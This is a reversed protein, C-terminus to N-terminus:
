AQESLYISARSQIAKATEEATNRGAYFKNLEDRIITWLATDAQYCVDVTEVYALFDRMAQERSSANPSDKLLELENAIDLEADDRRLPIKGMNAGQLLFQRLFQWCQEKHESQASMGLSIEPFIVGGVEPLGVFAYQGQGYVDAALEAETLSRFSWLFLLAGTNQIHKVANGGLFDVTEEMSAAIELLHVFYDSDFYCKNNEWDVLRDGSASVVMRLWENRRYDGNFLSRYFGSEAVTQEFTDYNWSAPDGVDAAAAMTALLAFGPSVQYLGGCIELAALPGPLFDSRSLEADGDIYPYLDELLGRRTLLPVNLSSESQSFDYLDPINGASIDTALRQEALSPDEDTNYISYDKVEITCEPHSGNWALVKKQVTFPLGNLTAFTLTVADAPIETQYLLLLSGEGTYLYSGGGCETLWGYEQIGLSELSFLKELSGSWFDFGYIAKDIQLYLDWETGCGTIGGSVDIYRSEGYAKAEEDIISICSGEDTKYRVVVSGDALKGFNATPSAPLTFAVKAETGVDLAYITDSVFGAYLYKESGWLDYIHIIGDSDEPLGIGRLDISRLLRGSLDFELLSSADYPSVYLRDGVAACSRWYKGRETDESALLVPDTGDKNTRYLYSSSGIEKAASGVFYVFDGVVPCPGYFYSKEMWALNKVAYTMSTHELTLDKGEVPKDPDSGDATGACGAICVLMCLLLLIAMGRKM